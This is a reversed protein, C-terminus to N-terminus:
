SIIEIIKPFDIKKLYQKEDETLIDTGVAIEEWAKKNQRYLAFEIAEIKPKRNIGLTRLDIRQGKKIEGEIIQGILFFKRGTIQLVHNLKFQAVCLHHWSYGCYRCQKAYPSLTPKNCKPCNNEPIEAM